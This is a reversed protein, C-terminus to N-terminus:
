DMEGKSNKPPPTVFERVSIPSRLSDLAADPKATTSDFRSEKRTKRGPQPSGPPQSSEQSSAAEGNRDLQEDAVPGGVHLSPDQRLFDGPDAVFLDANSDDEKAKAPAIKTETQTPAQLTENTKEAASLSSTLWVNAVEDSIHLDRRQGPAGTAMKTDNQQISSAKKDNCLDYSRDRHDDTEQSDIDRPSATPGSFDGETFPVGILRNALHRGVSRQRVPMAPSMVAVLEGSSNSRCIDFRSSGVIEDAEEHEDENDLLEDVTFSFRGLTGTDFSGSGVPQDNVSVSVRRVPKTPSLPSSMCNVDDMRSSSRVSVRRVPKVPSLPSAASRWSSGLGSTDLRSSTGFSEGGVAAVQPTSDSAGEGMPSISRPRVPMKPSLPAPKIPGSSKAARSSLRTWEFDEEETLSRSRSREPLKPSLPAHLNRVAKKDTPSSGTRLRSRDLSREEPSEPKVHDDFRTSGSTTERPPKQPSILPNENTYFGTNTLLKGEKVKELQPDMRTSSSIKAGDITGEPDAAMKRVPMRPSSVSVSRDVHCHIDMRSSSVLCTHRKMRLVGMSDTSADDNDSYVDNEDVVSEGSFYSLSVSNSMESMTIDSVHRAIACKDVSQRRLRSIFEPMDSEFVHLQQGYEHVITTKRRVLYGRTLSQIKTSALNERARQKREEMSQREKRYMTRTGM